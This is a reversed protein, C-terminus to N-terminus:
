ATEGALRAARAARRKARTNIAKTVYPGVDGLHGALSPTLFPRAGMKITGLEVLHAIPSSFWVGLVAQDKPTAMGRPKGTGGEDGGVKKGGAYVVLNGTDAMMPVGRKEAIVPDRPANARADAIIQEGLALLGNAMALQLEDLVARNLVVRAKRNAITRASAVKPSPM